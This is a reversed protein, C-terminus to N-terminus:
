KKEYSGEPNLKRQKDSSGWPRLALTAMVAPASGVVSTELLIDQALLPEISMGLETLSALLVEVEEM